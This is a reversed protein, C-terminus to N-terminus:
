AILSVINHQSLQGRIRFELTSADAAGLTQATLVDVGFAFFFRRYIEDDDVGKHKWWGAWLAIAARLTGQADQRIRHQKRIAGIVEGGVHNPYVPPSDIRLLESSTAKIFAPDVEYLDGAVEEPKTRGTPEWEHGCYPCTTFIAEYPLTCALCIRTPIKDGKRERTTKERRNLTYQQPSDVFKHEEFFRHCNGVHDIIIAKPKPSAAIVALRGADDLLNFQERPYDGLLLRLARGFQQAYLQFSATPRAMSVVEVAPV